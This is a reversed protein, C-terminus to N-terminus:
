AVDGEVVFYRRYKDVRLEYLRADLQRNLPMGIGVGHQRLRMLKAAIRGRTQSSLRQRWKVFEAEDRYRMAM